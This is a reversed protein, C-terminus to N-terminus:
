LCAEMAWSIFLSNEPPEKKLFYHKLGLFDTNEGFLLGNKNVVTNCAGIEEISDSKEDLFEIVSKKYPMTIGAGKINLTKMAILANKIDKVAFSKYIYNIDLFKFAQNHVFCGFSGSCEAFSCCLTTNKDIM